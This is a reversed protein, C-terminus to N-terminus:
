KLPLGSVAALAVGLGDALREAMTAARGELLPSVLAVIGGVFGAVAEIFAPLEDETIKGDALIVALIKGWKLIEIM